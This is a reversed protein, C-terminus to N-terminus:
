KGFIIEDPLENKDTEPDFPFEKSLVTGLDLILKELAPVFKDDKFGLILQNIQEDWYAQSYRKFIGEDAFLAISKEKTSLYVLVANRDDTEFMKLSGFIQKARELSTKAKRKHEIFLRIEGSTSREAIRIANVIQTQEEDSFFKRRFFRLM